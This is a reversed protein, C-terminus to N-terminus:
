DEGDQTRGSGKILRFYEPSEMFFDPAKQHPRPALIPDFPFVKRDSEVVLASPLPRTQPPVKAARAFGILNIGLAECM